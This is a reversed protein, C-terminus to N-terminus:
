ALRDLMISAIARARDLGRAIETKGSGDRVEYFRFMRKEAVKHIEVTSGVVRYAVPDFRIRELRM